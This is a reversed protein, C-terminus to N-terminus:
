NISNFQKLVKRTYFFEKVALIIDEGDIGWAKKFFFRNFVDIGPVKSSGISWIVEKIKAALIECTLREGEEEIICNDLRFVDVRVHNRNLMCTGLLGKYYEM